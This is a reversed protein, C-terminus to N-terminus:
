RANSGEVGKIVWGGGGGGGGRGVGFGGLQRGATPQKETPRAQCHGSMLPDVNRNCEALQGQFLRGILLFWCRRSRRAGTRGGSSWRDHWACSWKSPWYVRLSCAGLTTQTQCIEKATSINYRGGASCQADRSIHLKINVTHGTPHSSQMQPRKFM